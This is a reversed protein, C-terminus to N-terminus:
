RQKFENQLLWPFLTRQWRRGAQAMGYIPKDVRLIRPQGDSGLRAVGDEDEREYVAFGRLLNRVGYSAKSM